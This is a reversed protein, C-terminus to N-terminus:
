TNSTPPAGGPASVSLSSDRQSTTRGLIYGSMGGLLAALERSELVGIIGFLIIAIVLSFLTIFQLGAQGSFVNRRVGEDRWAVGFFGVIVTAVLLAFMLSMWLKFEQQPTTLDIRRLMEGEAQTLGEQTRRLQADLDAITQRAAAVREPRLKLDAELAEQRSRTRSIADPDNSRQSQEVDRKAFQLDSDLMELRQLDFRSRGIQETISGVQRMLQDRYTLLQSSLM